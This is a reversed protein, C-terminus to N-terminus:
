HLSQTLTHLQTITTFHVGREGQKGELMMMKVGKDKKKAQLGAEAVLM